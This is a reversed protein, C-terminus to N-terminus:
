DDLVRNWNKKIYEALVEGYTFNCDSFLKTEFYGMSLTAYTPAFITSMATGKIQNYYENNFKMTNNKLIFKACELVFEKSFRAHLSKPHNKLWYDLAELGFTHPITTYLSIVDFTM